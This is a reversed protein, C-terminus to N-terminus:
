YKFTLTNKLWPVWPSFGARLVDVGARMGIRMNNLVDIVSPGNYSGAVYVRKM